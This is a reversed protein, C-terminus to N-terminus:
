TNSNWFCDLPNLKELHPNTDHATPMKGEKQGQSYQMLCDMLEEGPAVWVTGGTPCKTVADQIRSCPTAFSGCNSATTGRTIDAYIPAAFTSM